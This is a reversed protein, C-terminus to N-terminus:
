IYHAVLLSLKHLFSRLDLEIGFVQEHPSVIFRLSIHYDVGGLFFFDFLDSHSSIESSNGIAKVVWVAVFM